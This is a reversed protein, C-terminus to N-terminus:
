PVRKRLSGVFSARKKATRSSPGKVSLHPRIIKYCREKGEVSHGGGGRVIKKEVPGKKEPDENREGENL